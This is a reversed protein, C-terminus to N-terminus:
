HDARIATTLESVAKTFSLFVDESLWEDKQSQLRIFRKYQSHLKQILEVQSPDIPNSRRGDALKAAMTGVQRADFYEPNGLRERISNVLLSWDVRIKSFMEDPSLDIVSPMQYELPELNLKTDAVEASRQIASNAEDIKSLEMETLVEKIEHMQATMTALLSGIRNDVEKFERSVHETMERSKSALAEVESQMTLATSRLEPLSRTFNSISSGLSNTFSLLLGGPGLVLLAVTAVIPWAIIDLLRLVM